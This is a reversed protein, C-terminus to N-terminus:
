ALRRRRRRRRRHRRYRSVEPEQDGDSGIFSMAGCVERLQTRFFHANVDAVEVFCGLVDQLYDEDVHAEDEDDVTAKLVALMAPVLVRFAVTEEKGSRGAVAAAPAAATTSVGAAAERSVLLSGEAASIIITTLCKLAAVRVGLPYGPSLFRAFHASQLTPFHPKLATNALRHSLVGIVYFATKWSECVGTNKEMGPQANSLAAFLTPLLEPWSGDDVQDWGLRGVVDAIQKRIRPKPEGTPPPALKQLLQNKVALQQEMSLPDWLEEIDRRLTVAAFSRYGESAHGGMVALLLQTLMVPATAKLNLLQAEADRRQITSSEPALIVGLVAEFQQQSAM